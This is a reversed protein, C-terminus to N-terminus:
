GEHLTAAVGVVRGDRVEVIIDPNTMTRQVRDIGTATRVELRPAAVNGRTWLVFRRGRAPEVRVVELPQRLFFEAQLRDAEGADVPGPPVVPEPGLLTAAAPDDANKLTAFHKCLQGGELEVQSLGRAPSESATPPGSRIAALAAAALAVATV